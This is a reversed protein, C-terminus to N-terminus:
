THTEISTGISGIKIEFKVLSMKTLLINQVLENTLLKSIEFYYILHFTNIYTISYNPDLM